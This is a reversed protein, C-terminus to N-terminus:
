DTLVKFCNQSTRAIFNSNMLTCLARLLNRRLLLTMLNCTIKSPLSYYPSLTLVTAGVESVM